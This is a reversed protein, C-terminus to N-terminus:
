PAFFKFTEEFILSVSVSKDNRTLMSSSIRTPVNLFPFPFLPCEWNPFFFVIDILRHIVLSAASHKSIVCVCVYMWANNYHMLGYQLIFFLFWCFDMKNGDVLLSCGLFPFKFFLEM